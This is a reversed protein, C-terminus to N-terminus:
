FVQAYISVIKFCGVCQTVAVMVSTKLRKLSKFNVGLKFGVQCKVKHHNRNIPLLTVPHTQSFFRGFHLGLWKKDFEICLMLLPFYNGLFSKKKIKLFRGLSFLRGIQDGQLAFVGVLL